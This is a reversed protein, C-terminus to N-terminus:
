FDFDLWIPQASAARSQCALVHGREANRRSLAKTTAMHVQGERLQAMCAGCHGETCSKPADIGAALAAQLLTQGPSLPVVHDTEDLTLRFAAPAPAAASSLAAAAEDAGPEDPSLFRESLITAGDGLLQDLTAEAMDMLRAPGCIYCHPRAAGAAAAIDAETMLGRQDDLWLRCDFRRAFCERLVGLESEYIVSAADRNAYVLRVTRGTSLLAQKCLSLIPTIGSGGAILLLPAKSDRLTFRGAPRSASISAGDRLHDNMWNSGRGRAVRKVCVSMDADASPASSLSYSRLIEGDPHPVRFTLFQGPLYAFM